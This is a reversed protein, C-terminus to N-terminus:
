GGSLDREFTRSVERYGPLLKAWGARGTVRVASAGQELAHQELVALLDPGVASLPHFAGRDACAAVVNLVVRQPYHRIETLLIGHLHGCPPVVCWLQAREECVLAYLAEATQNPDPDLALLRLVAAEQTADLEIARVRYFSGSWSPRTPAPSSM